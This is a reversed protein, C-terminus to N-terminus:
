VQEDPDSGTQENAQQLRDLLAKQQAYRARAEARIKERHRERYKAASRKSSDPNRQKWERTQAARCTRCVSRLGDRGKSDFGFYASTNPLEERCKSCTKKLTM